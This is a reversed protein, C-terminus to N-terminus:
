AAKREIDAALEAVVKAAENFKSDEEQTDKAARLFQDLNGHHWSTGFHTIVMNPDCWLQYGMAKLRESFVYDQSFFQRTGNEAQYQQQCFIVQEGKGPQDYRLEPYFDKYAQVAERKMRLFGWPVREAELLATGDGLIRGLPKGDRCKLRVTWHEWNNKMRYAGCVVHDQHSLLRLVGMPEWSEDSDICLIDTAEPDNLFRTYAENMAREIHFDGPTSWYEYKIGLRELVSITAVMSEIYPAHGRWDYFSTFLILKGKFTTQNPLAEM